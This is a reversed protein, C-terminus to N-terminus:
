EAALNDAIETPGIETAIDCVEQLGISDLSDAKPIPRKEHCSPLADDDGGDYDDTSCSNPVQCKPTSPNASQRSPLCRRMTEADIMDLEVPTGPPGLVKQGVDLITLGKADTGDVALLGDGVSVQGSEEAAGSIAAVRCFGTCVGHCALYRNSRVQFAPPLHPPSPPSSPSEGKSYDCVWVIGVGGVNRQGRPSSM